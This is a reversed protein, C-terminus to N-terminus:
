SCPCSSTTGPVSASPMTSRSPPRPDVVKAAALDQQRQQQTQQSGAWAQSSPVLAGDPVTWVWGSRTENLIMRTGNGRFEPSPDGTLTAGAYDLPRVGDPQSWLTGGAGGAPVWAAYPTTGLFDPAAPVGPTRPTAVRAASGAGTDVRVLGNADALYVADTM